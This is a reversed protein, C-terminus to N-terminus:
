VLIPTCKGDIHSGTRLVFQRWNLTKGSSSIPSSGAAQSYFTIAYHSDMSFSPTPETQKATVTGPM